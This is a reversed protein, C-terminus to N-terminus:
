YEVGRVRLLAEVARGKASRATFCDHTARLEGGFGRKFSAIRATEPDRGAVDIGGLDYETCGADRFGVMDRWHLFRNARAILNREEGSDSRRFHAASYLLMARGGGRAYAHWVLADGGDGAVRSLALLGSAAMAELRPRFAPSLGKSRAFDDYYAAFEAVADPPPALLTEASLEDRNAARRVEYRTNKGMQAFVDDESPTLDVVLTDHRRWPRDSSPDHVGVIRLVDTRPLEDPPEDVFYLEAIEVGRRRFRILPSADLSPALRPGGGAAM